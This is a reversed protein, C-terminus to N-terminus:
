KNQNFHTTKKKIKLLYLINWVFINQLKIIIKLHQKPYQKNKIPRSCCFLNSFFM